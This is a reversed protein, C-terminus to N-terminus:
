PVGWTAADTVAFDDATLAPQIQRIRQNRVNQIKPKPNTKKTAVKMRAITAMHVLRTPCPMTRRTADTPDLMTQTMMESARRDLAKV